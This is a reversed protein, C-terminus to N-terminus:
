IQGELILYASIGILREIDLHHSSRGMKKMCSDSSDSCSSSRLKDQQRGCHDGERGAVVDGHQVYLTGLWRWGAWGRSWGQGAVGGWVHLVAMTKSNVAM